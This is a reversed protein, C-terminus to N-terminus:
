SSTKVVTRESLWVLVACRTNPTEPDPSKTTDPCEPVRLRLDHIMKHLKARSTATNIVTTKQTSWEQQLSM